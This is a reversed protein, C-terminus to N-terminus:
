REEYQLKVEIRYPQLGFNPAFARMSRHFDREAHSSQKEGAKALKNVLKGCSQGGVLGRVARAVRTCTSINM